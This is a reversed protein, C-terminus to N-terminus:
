SDHLPTPLFNVGTPGARQTNPFVKGLEGICTARLEDIPAWPSYINLLEAGCLPCRKAEEKAPASNVGYFGGLTHLLRAGAGAAELAARAEPSDDRSELVARLGDSISREPTITIRAGPGAIMAWEAVIENSIPPGVYLARVHVANGDLDTASCLGSSSSDADLRSQATSFFEKTQQAFAQLVDSCPPSDGGGNEFEIRATVCALGRRRCEDAMESAVAEFQNQYRLLTKKLAITSCTCCGRLGCRLRRFFTHAEPGACMVKHGVLDCLAARLAKAKLGRKLLEQAFALQDDKAGRNRAYTIIDGYAEKEFPIEPKVSRPQGPPPVSPNVVPSQIQLSPMPKYQPYSDAGVV